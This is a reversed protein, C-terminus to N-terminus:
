PEDFLEALVADDVEGVGVPVIGGMTVGLALSGTTGEDEVLLVM